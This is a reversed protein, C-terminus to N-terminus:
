IEENKRGKMIKNLLRNIDKEKDSFSSGVVTTKAVLVIHINNEKIKEISKCLIERMVRKEYNRIVANGCKKGCVVAIKSTECNLSYYMNYLQSGVKIRKQVINAIENSEKLSYKKNM